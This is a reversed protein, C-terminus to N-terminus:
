LSINNAKIFYELFDCISGYFYANQHKFVSCIEFTKNCFITLKFWCIVHIKHHSNM